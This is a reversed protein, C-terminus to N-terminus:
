RAEGQTRGTALASPELSEALARILRAGLGIHLGVGRRRLATTARSGVRLLVSRGQTMSEM